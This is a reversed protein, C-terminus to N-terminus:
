GGYFKVAPVTIGTLRAFLPTPTNLQKQIPDLYAAILADDFQKLPGGLVGEVM